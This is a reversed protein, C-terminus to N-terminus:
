GSAITLVIGLPLASIYLAGDPRVKNRAFCPPWSSSNLAKAVHEKEKREQEVLWAAREASVNWPRGAAVNTLVHFFFDRTQESEFDMKTEHPKAAEHYLRLRYRLKGETQTPKFQPGSVEFGQLDPISSGSRIDLPNAKFKLLIAAMDVYGCEIAQNLPYVGNYQLNPSLGAMMASHVSHLRNADVDFVLSANRTGM